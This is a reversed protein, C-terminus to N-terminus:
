TNLTTEVGRAMSANLLILRGGSEEVDAVRGKGM